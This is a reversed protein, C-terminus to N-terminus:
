THPKIDKMKPPFNKTVTKDLIQAARERREKGKEKAEEEEEEEKM